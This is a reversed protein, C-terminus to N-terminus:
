NDQGDDKTFIDGLGVGEEGEDEEATGIAAARLEQAMAKQALEQEMERAKQELAMVMENYKLVYEETPVLKGTEDDEVIVIGRLHDVINSGTLIAVQILERIVAILDDGMKYIKTTENNEM